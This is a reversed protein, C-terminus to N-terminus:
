YFFFFLKISRLESLNVAVKFLRNFYLKQMVLGLERHTTINTDYTFNHLFFIHDCDVTTNKYMREFYNNLLTLYNRKKDLEFEKIIYNQVTLKVFEIELKFVPSDLRKYIENITNITNSFFISLYMRIYNFDNTNLFEKALLFAGYNVHVCAEVVLKVKKHKNKATQRKSRRKMQKIVPSSYM